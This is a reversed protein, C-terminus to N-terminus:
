AGPDRPGVRPQLGRLLGNTELYADAQAKQADLWRSVRRYHIPLVFERLFAQFGPSYAVFRTMLTVWFGTEQRVVQKGEEIMAQPELLIARIMFAALRLGRARTYQAKSMCYRLPDGRFAQEIHDRRMHLSGTVDSWRFRATSDSKTRTRILAQPESVYAVDGIQSLRFWMDMDCGLGYRRHDYLGVRKYAERRVMATAAMIPSGWANALRRRMEQGPMLSPFPRIDIGVPMGESDIMMLATHVFSASRYQDLLATCREVITSLYIDHDHYIAVYDGLALEICHNWNPYLGLNTENRYYRIRRDKFSMVLEETGDSSADDCIILEWDAVTQNLMATITQQLTQARNFTPVCISVTPTM